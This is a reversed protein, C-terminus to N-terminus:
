RDYWQTFVDSEYDFISTKDGRDTWIVHYRRGTASSDFYDGAFYYQDLSSQGTVLVPPKFAGGGVTSVRYKVDYVLNPKAPDGRSHDAFAVYIFPKPQTSTRQSVITPFLQAKAGSLVTKAAWKDYAAAGATSGNPVTSKIYYVNGCESDTKSTTPDAAFVMHATGLHDIDIAPFMSTWAKHYFNFGGGQGTPGPCLQRPVEFPLDKAALINASFTTGRDKSSNCVENFKGGSVADINLGDAGSDFYCVLVDTTPGAAVHPGQLVSPACGVSNTLEVPAAWTAGTDSSKSFVISCDGNTKFLSAALYIFGSGDNASGADNYTHVAIWPKDGFGLATPVVATPGSLPPATPDIGDVVLTVIDSAFEDPPPNGTSRESMYTFVFDSHGDPAPPTARVVPDACFDGPNLLPLLFGFDYSLGGDTSVYVSCEVNGTTDDQSVTVVRREDIPSAAISPTNENGLYDTSVPTRFSMRVGTQNTKRRVNLHKGGVTSIGLADAMHKSTVGSAIMPHISRLWRVRQESSLAPGPVAPLPRGQSDRAAVLPGGSARVVPSDAAVLGFVALLAAASAFTVIPRCRV